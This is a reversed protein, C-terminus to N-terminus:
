YLNRISLYKDAFKPNIDLTKNIDVFKSLNKKEKQAVSIRQTKKNWEIFFFFTEPACM